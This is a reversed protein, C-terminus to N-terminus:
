QKFSLMYGDFTFELLPNKKYNLALIKKDYNIYIGMENYWDTPMKSGQFLDATAVEGEVMVQFRYPKPPRLQRNFTISIVRNYFCLETFVAIVGDLFQSLPFFLGPELQPPYINYISEYNM